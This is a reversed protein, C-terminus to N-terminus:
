SERQWRRSLQALHRRRGGDPLAPPTENAPMGMEGRLQALTIEVQNALALAPMPRTDLTRHQTLERYADTALEDTAITEEAQEVEVRGSDGYLQELMARRARAMQRRSLLVHQRQELEVRKEELAEQLRELEQLSATHQQALAQYYEAQQRARLHRALATRALDERGAAVARRAEELRTAARQMTTHYAAQLRREEHRGSVLEARADVLQGELTELLDDIIREPPATARAGYHARGYRCLRKWLSM